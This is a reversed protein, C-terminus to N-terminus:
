PIQHADRGSASLSEQVATLLKGLFRGPAGQRSKQARSEQTRRIECSPPFGGAPGAGPRAGDRIGIGVLDRRGLDEHSNKKSASPSSSKWPRITWGMERPSSGPGSDRVISSLIALRATLV